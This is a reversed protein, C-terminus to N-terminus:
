VFGYIYEVHFTIKVNNVVTWYLTNGNCNLVNSENRTVYEITSECKINRLM